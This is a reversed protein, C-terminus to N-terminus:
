KKPHFQCREVKSQFFLVFHKDTPDKHDHATQRKDEEDGM